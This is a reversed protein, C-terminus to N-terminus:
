DNTESAKQLLWNKATELVTDKGESLDAANQRVPIDPELGRGEIPRDLFGKYAKVPIVIKYLGNKLTYTQKSSSAGATAEGFVTARKHAIFWSAWGEGASICRADTLLAIPGKFLPRDASPDNLAFNLHAQQDDFGGGSNGRVDIILGKARALENVARDLSPILTSDMKRVYIYGVRNGMMTWSVPEDDDIGKIPVPLRPLYRVGLTAPIKFERDRGKPDRTVLQVQAGKKMQRPLMQAAHYKLYRESSYGVYTSRQIMVEKLAQEAPVGNISIVTMGVTIGAGKAPSGSDVYYVVPQNQDDILCAFGPDWEPFSITPLEASGSQLEAHSDKLRAVLEMCLLGFEEDTKVTKVRPIMEDGVSKWGVGKIDFAPYVQGMTTYIDLFAEEYTVEEPNKPPIKEKVKRRLDNPQALCVSVISFLFILTAFKKM